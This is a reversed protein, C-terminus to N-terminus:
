KGILTLTAPTIGAIKADERKYLTGDIWVKIKKNRPDFKQLM